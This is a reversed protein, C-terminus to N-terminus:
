IIYNKRPSNTLGYLLEYMAPTTFYQDGLAGKRAINAGRGGLGQVGIDQNEKGIYLSAQYRYYIFERIDAETQLDADMSEDVHGAAFIGASTKFYGQLPTM